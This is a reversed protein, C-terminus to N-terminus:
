KIEVKVRCSSSSFICADLVKLLYLMTLFTQMVYQFIGLLVILLVKEGSEYGLDM